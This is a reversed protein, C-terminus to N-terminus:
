IPDALTPNRYLPQYGNAPDFCNQETGKINVLQQMVEPVDSFGEYWLSFFGIAVAVIAINQAAQNINFIPSQAAVDYSQRSANVAIMADKRRISRIDVINPREDTNALELLSITRNAKLTQPDQLGGKAEVIASQPEFHSQVISFPLHTNHEEPLYYTNIDIPQNSKANNCPGCALLMNDWSLPDGLTYGAPPNKPIVHEVQISHSLTQNCYVCYYGIRKILALRWNKYDTPEIVNGAADKPTNGKNLPRM